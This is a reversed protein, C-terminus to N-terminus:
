ISTMENYTLADECIKCILRASDADLRSAIGQIEKLSNQLGVIQSVLRQHDKEDSEGISKLIGIVSEFKNSM